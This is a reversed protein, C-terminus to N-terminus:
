QNNFHNSLVYQGKKTKREKSSESSKFQRNKTKLTKHVFSVHLETICLHIYPHMCAQIYSHIYANHM